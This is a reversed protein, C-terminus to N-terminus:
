VRLFKLTYFTIGRNTVATEYISPPFPIVSIIVTLDDKILSVTLILFGCIIYIHQKLVHRYSFNGGFIFRGLFCSPSSVGGGELFAFSGAPMALFVFLMLIGIKLERGKNAEIVYILSVGNFDSIYILYRYSNICTQFRINKCVTCILLYQVPFVPGFRCYGSFRQRQRREMFEIYSFSSYAM